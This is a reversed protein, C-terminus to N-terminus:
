KKPNKQTKLSSSLRVESDQVELPADPDCTCFYCVLGYQGIEFTTIDFLDVRAGCYVCVDEFGISGTRIYEIINNAIAKKRENYAEEYWVFTRLANEGNFRFIM